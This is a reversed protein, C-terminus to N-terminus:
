GRAAGDEGRGEALASLLQRGAASRKDAKIRAREDETFGLREYFVDTGAFSPDVSAVKVAFDAMSSMSPMSPNRFSPTIECSALSEAFSTGRRVALAMHAVNSLARGNVDNLDQADSVLGSEMASISEASTPNDHIVGLMSVPVNTEGSMRAAYSRMLSIHPEMSSASFQGVTPVQGDQDRSVALINGIYAEWRTGRKFASGDMGLFYRQPSTYFEASIETRLSERVASDTIGMVARSIRSRGFPRQRTPRYPLAEMMPRGMGHERVLSRWAGGGDCRLEVTCDPAYLNYANARGHRDCDVVTIGYGVRKRRYDWLAAATTADYEGVLVDPEGHASDGESVTLFAVSHILEGQVTRRYANQLDNQRMLRALEDSAAQDGVVTFGDFRSRAALADVAKAPWGVVTEVGRLEPPISIGLDRLRNKGEYYRGRVRNRALKTSWVDFLDSLPQRLGDPFDPGPTPRVATVYDRM